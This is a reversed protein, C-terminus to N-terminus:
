PNVIKLYDNSYEITDEVLYRFTEAQRPNNILSEPIHTHFGNESFPVGPISYMSIGNERTLVFGKDKLIQKMQTPQIKELNNM